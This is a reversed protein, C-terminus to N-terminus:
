QWEKPREVTKGDPLSVVRPMQFTSLKELPLARCVVGMSAYNDNRRKHVDAPLVPVYVTIKIQPHNARVWQVASELDSDGSVLVICDARKQIADDIIAVAINVDTKKEEPAMFPERCKALCRTERMRYRGLQVTVLPYAKLAELFRKQKDRKESSRRDPEVLASFYRIAVVDEHHRMDCFYGRLDLWKRNPFTSLVGYYLNFGDVYVICRKKPDPSTALSEPGTANDM